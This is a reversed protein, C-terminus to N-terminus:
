CRHSWLLIDRFTAPGEEPPPILRETYHIEFTEVPSQGPRLHLNRTRCFSRAYELRYDAYAVSAIREQVKVWRSYLPDSYRESRDDAARETLLDIRTGDALTAPMMMWGDSRAPEPAFMDWRQDLALFRLLTALDGSPRAAEAQRPLATAFSLTALVVLAIAGYRWRARTGVHPLTVPAIARRAEHTVGHAYALTRPAAVPAVRRTLLAVISEVWEPPLFLVLVAFMVVPFNGVNMLTLIGLHLGAALAVALLRSVKSPVMALPLFAVEVILTGHTILQSLTLNTAVPRAWGRGFTHELQLAYYSAIGSPWASGGLKEIGTALYIWAIQLELIRLPLAFGHTRRPEGREAALRADISYLAGCDTFALWLPVFRFVLDSGDLILPDRLSFSEVAVFALFAMVRSRYGAALLVAVTLALTWFLAVQWWEGVLALLTFRDSYTALLARRPLIGEDTFFATLNPYLQWIWNFLLVGYVIRLLAVPALHTEGIWFERLRHM